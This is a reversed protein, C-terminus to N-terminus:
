TSLWVAIKYWVLSMSAKQASLGMVKLSRRPRKTCIIRVAVGFKPMAGHCSRELRSGWYWSSDGSGLRYRRFFRDGGHNEGWFTLKGGNQGLGASSDSHLSRQRCISWQSYLIVASQTKKSKFQPYGPKTAGQKLRRFYNSFAKGVQTFPQSTCDRHVEM